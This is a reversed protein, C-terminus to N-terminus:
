SSPNLLQVTCPHTVRVYTLRLNLHTYLLGGLFAKSGAAGSETRFVSCVDPPEHYVISYICRPSAKKKGVKSLLEIYTIRPEKLHKIM